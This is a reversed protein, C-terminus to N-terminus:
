KLFQRSIPTNTNFVLYDSNAAQPAQSAGMGDQQTNWNGADSWNSSVGGLWYLTTLLDRRELLEYSVLGQKSFRRRSNRKRKRNKLSQKRSRASM